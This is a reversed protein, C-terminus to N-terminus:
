AKPTGDLTAPGAPTACDTACRDQLCTTLPELGRALESASIARVQVYAPRPSEDNAASPRAIPTKSVRNSVRPM